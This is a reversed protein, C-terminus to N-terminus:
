GLPESGIEASELRERTGVPRIGAAGEGVLVPRGALPQCAPHDLGPENRCDVGGAILDSPGRAAGGARREHDARVEVRDLRPPAEVANRADQRPQLDRAAQVGAAM